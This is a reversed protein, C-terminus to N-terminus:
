IFVSHPTYNHVNFFFISFSSQLFIISLYHSGRYKLLTLLISNQYAVEQSDTVCLLMEKYHTKLTACVIILPIHLCHPHNHGTSMPLCTKATFSQAPPQVLFYPRDSCKSHYHYAQLMTITLFPSTLHLILWRWWPQTFTLIQYSWYPYLQM